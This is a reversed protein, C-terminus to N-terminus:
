TLLVITRLPSPSFTSVPNIHALVLRPSELVHYHVNPKNFPHVIKFNSM